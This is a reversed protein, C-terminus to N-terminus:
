NQIRIESNVPLTIGHRIEFTVDVSRGELNISTVKGMKVGNVKVPDGAQLTSVQDLRAHYVDTKSGPATEKLFYIGFLLIVLTALVFAGVVLNQSRSNM